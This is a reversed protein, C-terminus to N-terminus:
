ASRPIVINYRNRLRQHMTRYGLLSGSGRLEVQVASFVPCLFMVRIISCRVLLCRSVRSLSTYRGRRRLDLRMLIRKLTRLSICVGHLAILFCLIFRYSYGLQFYYRILRDRGIPQMCDVFSVFIAIFIIGVALSPMEQFVCGSYPWILCAARRQAHAIFSHFDSTKYFPFRCHIAGIPWRLFHYVRARARFTFGCMFNASIFISLPHIHRISGRPVALGLALRRFNSM